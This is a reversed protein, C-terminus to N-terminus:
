AILHVIVNAQQHRLQLPGAEPTANVDQNGTVVAHSLARGLAEYLQVFAEVRVVVGQHVECRNCGDDWMFTFLNVVALM